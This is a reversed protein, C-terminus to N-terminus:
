ECFLNMVDSFPPSSDILGQSIGALQKIYPSVMSDAKIYSHFSQMEDIFAGIEIIEGTQTFELDIYRDEKYYM